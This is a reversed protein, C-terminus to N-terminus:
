ADFQTGRRLRPWRGVQALAVIQWENHAIPINSRKHVQRQNFGERCNHFTARGCTRGFQKPYRLRRDAAREFPEFVRGPEPEEFAVTGTEYRSVFRPLQILFDDVAVNPEIPELLCHRPDTGNAGARDPDGRRRRQTQREHRAHDTPKCIAVRTHGHGKFDGIGGGDAVQDSAASKINAETGVFNVSGIKVSFRENGRTANAHHQGVMRKGVCGNNPRFVEMLDAENGEGRVIACPLQKIACQDANGGRGVDYNFGLESRCDALQRNVTHPNPKRIGEGVNRAAEFRLSKGSNAEFGFNWKTGKKDPRGVVGARLDNVVQRGNQSGLTIEKCADALVSKAGHM